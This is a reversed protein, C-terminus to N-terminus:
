FKQVVVPVGTIRLRKEVVGDDFGPQGGGVYITLDGPEVEWGMDNNLVAMQLPKLDFYVTRTEGAELYIRQMGQLSFRPVRVSAERDKVYLQVVEDGALAGSNKVSVEIRASEGAEIKAPVKLDNYKFRTYSLGYGFPYLPDGEFYKYTRNEMSYDHYDPLDATSHYFTVPLRGAPNYEGFLVEAVATGGSQGPYWAQLIADTKLYEEDFATPAGSILVLITPKNKALVTKILKQQIPPLDIDERDNSEEELLHSLGMVLVVADAEAVVKEANELLVANDYAQGLAAMFGEHENCVLDLRIEYARGGVFELYEPEDEQTAILQGDLSLSFEPFAHAGLLIRGSEPYTVTGEWRVCFKGTELDDFPPGFEDWFMVQSEVRVHAPEGSFDTNAWYSARLGVEGEPTRLYRKPTPTAFGDEDILECGKSYLVKTDPILERIGELVSVPQSPIGNYNAYLVRHDEANPGIVAITGIDKSLPLIDDKNKLLVMSERAMQLALDKHEPSDIASKPISTYPVMEPPDFMGLKMRALLVRYAATDILAENLKGQEVAEDLFDYPFQMSGGCNLDVGTELALIAADMWNETFQHNDAIDIVAGCDTVVFGEFGLRRRLMDDLLYESGCCSEGNLASYACMVSYVGAEKITAIYHPMYTEWFDRENSITNFEHRLAEPGSHVVYHKVTSITKFYRPHDGQLGKVFSVGMRSTLYPDEGYTEQGRGWRPDRFLNINPSFFSLGILYGEEANRVDNHHMARAEESIANGVKLMLPENFSAAMGISQPFVTAYTDAVAVGHLCENMYNYAPIGFREVAPADHRIQSVKEELTMQHILNWTREEFSLKTDLYTNDITIREVCGSFM